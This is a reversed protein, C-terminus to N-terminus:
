SYVAGSFVSPFQSLAPELYNRHGDFFGDGISDDDGMVSILMALEKCVERDVLGESYLWHEVDSSLGLKLSRQLHRVQESIDEQQPRGDMLDAIAGVVLMIDYSLAGDCVDLVNHMKFTREQSGAQFKLNLETASNLIDIYSNGSLWQKAISLAAGENILKKLVKNDAVDTVLPWITELLQNLSLDQHILEINEDIWENVKNLDDVGLLARGYVGRSSVDVTNVSESAIKFVQLLNAKEDDTALSYALTSSCLDLVDEESIPRDELISALLFSEVSKLISKRFDMQYLLDSVDNGNAAKIALQKYKDPNVLYKIPDIQYPDNEFPTAVVLLSSSCHESQASDLLSQLNRWQWRQNTKRRDYLETDSFIVSGETHKGSRGARGLLNHFDRTSIRNRGQYVGSVILYKIPLNVGQALTSTCIVCRGLGLEMATEIAVRLGNPVGASHPLVGLAIAKTLESEDGLHKRSLDAIKGIELESSVSLPVSLGEIRDHASVIKKCISAVSNKTGCFVAVAGFESLKLGLYAAVSSKDGKDPFFRQTRERGRLPIVTTSLVRPVFFEEQNPNLPNVYHIQGRRTAWSCFGVSRETALLETGNVAIGEGAYLWEGISGANPMVASILVHQTSAPLRQKLSTLLLEYTVGRQGTDFQHGEDYIVLSIENALEPNHRLLYVLKEPTSVLVSPLPDEAESDDFINFIAAVDLKDIQPIDNLQNVLIEEGHFSMTLADSIERCLSRFPAVIVATTARDSLFAARLILEASKTKGASTPLQIVASRGEFVGKEGLLKQAPWFEQIFGPKTLAPLWAEVNLGSFVPLLSIASNAIKKKIIAVVVDALLLERDSGRDHCTRRLSASYENLRPIADVGLQYFVRLQDRILVVNESIYSDQYLPLERDVDSVLLWELLDELGIHTLKTRIGSLRKALVSSSGPMNALYYSAAGLVCLYYEHESELKSQILADFYKASDKLELQADSIFDATDEGSLELQCLDGLMGITMVLLKSPPLPLNIHHEEELGLEYMMAKAKTISLLTSSSKEFKM